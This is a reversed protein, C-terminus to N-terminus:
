SARSPTRSTTWRSSPRARCRSAQSCKTVPVVASTGTFDKVLHAPVGFFYTQSGFVKIAGVIFDIDTTRKLVFPCTIYDPEEQCWAYGRVGASHATGIATLAFAGTLNFVSAFSTHLKVEEPKLNISM